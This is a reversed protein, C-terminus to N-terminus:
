AKLVALFIVRVECEVTQVNVLLYKM